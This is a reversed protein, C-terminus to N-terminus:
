CFEPVNPKLARLSRVTKFSAGSVLRTYGFQAGLQGYLFRTNKHNNEVTPNILSSTSTLDVFTDVALYKMVNFIM